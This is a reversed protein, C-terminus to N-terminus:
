RTGGRAVPLSVKFLALSTGRAGPVGQGLLEWLLFLWPIMEHESTPCINLVVQSM